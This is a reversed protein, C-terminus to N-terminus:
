QNNNNDEWYWVTCDWYEKSRCETISVFNERGVEENVFKLVDKRVSARIKELSSGYMKETFTECKLNASKM